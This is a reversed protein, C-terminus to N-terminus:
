TPDHGAQGCGAGDDAPQEPVVPQGEYAVDDQQHHRDPQDSRASRGSTAERLLFRNRLSRHNVHTAMWWQNGFADQVGCTRDGCFQDAPERLSTAGAALARRYAADVNEVYLHLVAPMLANDDTADGMM